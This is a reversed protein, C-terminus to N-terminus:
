PYRTDDPYRAPMHGVVSCDSGCYKTRSSSHSGAVPAAKAFNNRAPDGEPVLDTSRHSTPPCLGVVAHEVAGIDHCTGPRQLDHITSTRVPFPFPFVSSPKWM